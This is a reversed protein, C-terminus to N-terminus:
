FIGHFNNFMSNVDETDYVIDWTEERLLLQFKAITQADIVRIKSKLAVKWSPNKINGLIIIQADHDSLGNVFRHVSVHDCKTSDIFFSDLLTGKNNSIRTPFDVVQILNFTKMVTGLIQKAISEALFNINLDGCVLFNTPRYLFNL